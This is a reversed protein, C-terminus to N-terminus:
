RDFFRVNKTPKYMSNEYLQRSYGFDTVKAVGHNFVLVNRAALDGHIVQQKVWLDALLSLIDTKYNEAGNVKKSELYEMALAIQECFGFLKEIVLVEEVTAYHSKTENVYVIQTSPEIVKLHNELSGIPSLEM